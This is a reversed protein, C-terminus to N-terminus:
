LNPEIKQPHPVADADLMRVAPTNDLWPMFDITRQKFSDM